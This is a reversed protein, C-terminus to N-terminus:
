SMWGHRFFLFLSFSNCQRGNPSPFFCDSLFPVSSPCCCVAVCDARKHQQNPQGRHHHRPLQTYFIWLIFLSCNGSSKSDSYLLRRGGAWCPSLYFTGAAVFFISHFCDASQLVQRYLGVHHPRCVICWGATTSTRGM